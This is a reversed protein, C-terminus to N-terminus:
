NIFIAKCKEYNHAHYFCNVVGMVFVLLLRIYFAITFFMQGESSKLTLLCYIVGVVGSGLCTWILREIAKEKRKILAIAAIAYLVAFLTLYIALIGNVTILKFELESASALENFNSFNNKLLMYIIYVNILNLIALIGLMIIDFIIFGSIKIEEERRRGRESRRERERRREEKLKKKDKPLESLISTGCISCYDKGQDIEKGCSPCKM